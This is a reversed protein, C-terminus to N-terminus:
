AGGDTEVRVYESDGQVNKYSRFTLIPQSREM